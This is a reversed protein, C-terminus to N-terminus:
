RLRPTKLAVIISAFKASRIIPLGVRLEAAMSDYALVVISKLKQRADELTQDILSIQQGPNFCLQDCCVVGLLTSFGIQRAKHASESFSPKRSRLCQRYTSAKWPPIGRAIECDLERLLLVLVHYGRTAQTGKGRQNFIILFNRTLEPLATSDAM